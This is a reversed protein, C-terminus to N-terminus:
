VKTIRGGFLRIAVERCKRQTDTEGEYALAKHVTKISTNCELSIRKIAGFPVIIQKRKEEM